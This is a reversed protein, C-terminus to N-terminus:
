QDGYTLNHSGSSQAVLDLIGPPSNKAGDLTGGVNVASKVSKPLLSVSGWKMSWGTSSMKGCKPTVWFSYLAFTSFDAKQPDGRKLAM